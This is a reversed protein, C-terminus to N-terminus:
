SSPAAGLCSIWVTLSENSDKSEVASVTSLFINWM